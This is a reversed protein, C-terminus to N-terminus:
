VAGTAMDVKLFQSGSSAARQVSTKARKENFKFRQGVDHSHSQNLSIQNVQEPSLIETKNRNIKEPHKM